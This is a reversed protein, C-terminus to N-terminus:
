SMKQKKINIEIAFKGVATTCPIVVCPVDSLRAIVHASGLVVTPVTISAAAGLDKKASGAVMNALEGIADAFDPSDPAMLAGAFAEVLKVAAAQQLSLVLSGAVEGSFGIIGSVDYSPTTENKLYPRDITAEVKVMTGFVAKVAKVFPALLKTDIAAPPSEQTTTM